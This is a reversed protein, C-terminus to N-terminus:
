HETSRKEQMNKIATAQNYGTGCDLDTTGLLKVFKEYTESALVALDKPKSILLFKLDASRTLAM